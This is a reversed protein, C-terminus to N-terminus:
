ALLEVSNETPPVPLAVRAPVRLTAPVPVLAIEPLMEIAPWADEILLLVSTM